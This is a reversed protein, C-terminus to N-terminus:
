EPLQYGKERFLRLVADVVEPDFHQGRHSEIEHIAEEIGLSARYPRHSAIAELVDAVALIRSELLTEEGKLGMPYGSGDMREHHERIIEAIPLSFEVDKLIQYGQEAHTKVLEFEIASLRGPRSLIEAPISMKGIDHVLGILQLTHCNEESWGMERAIDGAICGVRREHGATYPDHAEVVNTVALLTSQMANELQKVYGEIKQESKKRDTINDFVAVFHDKQMSYASIELWMHLAELYFEFREAQGSIAVRAYIELLEPNLDHIGPIIESVRKGEPHKIGTQQEFGSNVQEYIFDVPRDDEFILRCYAIGNLMNDFLMKFREQQKKLAEQTQKRETIDIGTGIYRDVKGNQDRLPKGRSMIWHISGDPYSVRYEFDFVAENKAAARASLNALERDDPHISKAWLHFSPKESSQKLGHLAWLEESWFLEDTILDWEWVGAQAAELAQTVRIKNELLVGEIRKQETIDSLVLRYVNEADIVAADIRFTRISNSAFLRVDCNCSVRKSLVNELLTDIVPYDEPVVIKKFRMGLLSSRAVGLLKTSTLNAQLITSDQGLTLYGTPAFDYLETYMRLSSELEIRSQQLEEQQMELEIQHVELDHVLRFMDEPSSFAPTIHQPNQKLREEAFSRLEKPTTPHNVNKKKKMPFLQRYVSFNYM